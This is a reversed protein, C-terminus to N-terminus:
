GLPAKPPAPGRAELKAGPGETWVCKGECRVKAFPRWSASRAVFLWPMLDKAVAYKASMNGEATGATM